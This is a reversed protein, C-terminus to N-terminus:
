MRLVDITPADITDPLNCFSVVITRRLNLQM